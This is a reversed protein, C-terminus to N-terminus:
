DVPIKPFDMESFSFGYNMYVNNGFLTIKADSVAKELKGDSNVGCIVLTKGAKRFLNAHEVIQHFTDYYLTPHFNLNKARRTTSYHDLVFFRSRQNSLFERSITNGFNEKQSPTMSGYNISSFDLYSTEDLDLHSKVLTTAGSGAEGNIGLIGIKECDLGAKVIGGRTKYNGFPFYQAPIKMQSITDNKQVRILTLGTDYSAHNIGTLIFGDLLGDFTKNIAGAEQMLNRITGSAHLKRDLVIDFDDFGESDSAIRISNDKKRHYAYVGELPLKEEPSM